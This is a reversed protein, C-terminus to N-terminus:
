QSRLMRLHSRTYGSRHGRPYLLPLKNALISLSLSLSIATLGQLFLHSRYSPQVLLPGVALKNKELSAQM